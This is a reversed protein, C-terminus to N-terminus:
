EMEYGEGVEICRDMGKEMEKVVSGVEGEGVKGVVIDMKDVIGGIDVEKYVGGEGGGVYRGDREVVLVVVGLEEEFGLVEGERDRFGREIDVEGSDESVVGNM